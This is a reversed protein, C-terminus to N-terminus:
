GNEETVVWQRREMNLLREANWVNGAKKIRSMLREGIKGGCFFLVFVFLYLFGM